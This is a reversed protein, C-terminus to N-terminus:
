SNVFDESNEDYYIRLNSVHIFRGGGVDVTNRCMLKIYDGAVFDATDIDETYTHDTINSCGNEHTTGIIVNNKDFIKSQGCINILNGSNQCNWKVRIAGKLGTTFTIRKLEEWEDGGPADTAHSAQVDYSHKLTNSKKKRVIGQEIGDLKDKDIKDNGTVDYIAKAMLDTDLEAKAIIGDQNPDYIAIQMGVGSVGVM